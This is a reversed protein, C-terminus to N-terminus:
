KQFIFMNNRENDFLYLGYKTIYDMCFRSIRYQLTKFDDGSFISNRGMNIDKAGSKLM